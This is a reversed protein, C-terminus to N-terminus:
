RPQYKSRGLIPITWIGSHRPIVEAVRKVQPRDLYTLQMLNAQNDFGGEDHFQIKQLISKLTYNGVEGGGGQVGGGGDDGGNLGAINLEGVSGVSGLVGGGGFNGGSDGLFISSALIHCIRM